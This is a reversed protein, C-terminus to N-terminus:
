FNQSIFLKYIKILYKTKDFSKLMVQLWYIQGLKTHFKNLISPLYM